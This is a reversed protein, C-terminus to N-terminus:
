ISPTFPFFYFSNIFQNIAPFKKEETLVWNINCSFSFSDSMLESLIMGSQFNGVSDLPHFIINKNELGRIYKPLLVHIFLLYFNFFKKKRLTTIIGTEMGKKIKLNAISHKAKTIAPTQTTLKRVASILPFLERKDQIALNHNIHIIVKQVKKITSAPHLNPFKIIQDIQVLTHM